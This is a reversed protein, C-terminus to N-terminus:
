AAKSKTQTLSLIKIGEPYNMDIFNQARRVLNIVTCHNRNGLDYGIRYYTAGASRMIYAYAMRASVLTSEKSPGRIESITVGFLRAVRQILTKDETFDWVYGRSDITTM